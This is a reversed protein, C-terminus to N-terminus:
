RRVWGKRNGLHPKKAKEETRWNSSLFNILIVLIEFSQIAYYNHFLCVLDDKADPFPHNSTLPSVRFPRSQVTLRPEQYSVCESFPLRPTSQLLQRPGESTKLWNSLNLLLQLTRLLGTPMMSDATDGAALEITFAFLVSLHFHLQKPGWAQAKEEM